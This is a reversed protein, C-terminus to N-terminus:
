HFNRNQKVREKMKVLLEAPVSVNKGGALTTGPRISGHYDSGGTMLLSYKEALSILRKRFKRSHTPYYVEIGDLGMDRLQHLEHPLNDVSKDLQFPHALVAIGGANNILSIADKVGYAFRSAYALAGHGLYKEFAEDMTRVFGKQIMLRAIHPRGNQGSGATKQLESFEIALGLRNLKAIIKKNREFRGAQLQALSVHLEKHDCDFMYGLLHVNHDSYKVSLEIGSVVEIGLKKGSVIAEAIGGITDHDTIAIASLGKKHAYKVLDAPSMTGDSATSHTHLDISM